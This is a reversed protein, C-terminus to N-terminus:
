TVTAQLDTFGGTQYRWAGITSGDDSLACFGYYYTGPALGADVFTWNTTTIPIVAVVKSRNFAAGIASPSRCIVLGWQNTASTVTGAISVNGEGGTLTPIGVTTAAHAKGAPSAQTPTQNMAWEQLNEKVYANFPSISLAAAALDWTAKAGGTLGYWANSLFAMMARTCTQMDSRPNNPIVRERVYPRGKWVSFVLSKAFTGSATDSHLPGTVRAM